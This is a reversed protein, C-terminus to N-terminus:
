RLTSVNPLAPRWSRWLAEPHRTKTYRSDDETQSPKSKDSSDSFIGGDSWPDDAPAKADSGGSGGGGGSGSGGFSISAGGVTSSDSSAPRNTGSWGNVESRKPPPLGAEAAALLADIARVSIAECTTTGNEFEQLEGGLVIVHPDAVGSGGSHATVPQNYLVAAARGRARLLRAGPGGPQDGPWEQIKLTDCDLSCVFDTASSGSQGGIIVIIGHSGAATFASSSAASGTDSTSSGGASGASAGTTKTATATSSASATATPRALRAANRQPLLSSPIHVACPGKRAIAMHETVQTWEHTTFDFYEITNLAGGSHSNGGIAYFRNQSPVFVGAMAYRKTSMEKSHKWPPVRVEELGYSWGFIREGPSKAMLVTVERLPQAAAAADGITMAAKLPKGDAGAAAVVAAAGASSAADEADQAAKKSAAVIREMVAPTAEVPPTPTAAVSGKLAKLALPAVDALGLAVRWEPASQKTLAILQKTGPTLMQWYKWEALYEGRFGGGLCIRNLTPHWFGTPQEISNPLHMAPVTFLMRTELDYCRAHMRTVGGFEMVVRVTPRAYAIVIAILEPLLFPEAHPHDAGGASSSSSSSSASRGGSGAGDRSLAARVALQFANSTGSGVSTINSSSSSSSGTAHFAGGAKAAM